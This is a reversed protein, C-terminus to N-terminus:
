QIVQRYVALNGEAMVRTSFERAIIEKGQEGMQKRLSTNKLLSIISIKLANTDGAHILLGNENHRIIEPMGGAKTAIVPVGAASAQLLSVGLGEMDAPHVVIDLCGIWDSLDKRFGVLQVSKLKKEQISAQLESALAGKGFFLVNLNPFSQMIEPLVELLHRHGKRHILQAIVAITLSDGPLNFAALFDIRHCSKNYVSADVASRVTVVKDPPMGQALLVKRIGDSITIVRVYPKYKLKVVFPHEPNDVRRSIVAPIGALKAALGGFLDIGLRRSHIHVLDPAEAQFMTKLVRIIGLGIRRQGSLLRVSQCYQSAAKEIESGECCVLVNDVQMEALHKLLYVVQQAGGYLHMGTEIHLVKM